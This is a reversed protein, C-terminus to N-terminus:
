RPRLRSRREGEELLKEVTEIELYRIAWILGSEDGDLSDTSSGAAVQLAMSRAHAIGAGSLVPRSLSHPRSHARALLLRRNIKKGL